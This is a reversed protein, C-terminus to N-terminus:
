AGFPLYKFQRYGVIFLPSLAAGRGGAGGYGRIPCPSVRMFNIVWLMGMTQLAGNQMPM